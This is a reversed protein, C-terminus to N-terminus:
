GVPRPVLRFPLTDLALRERDRFFGIWGWAKRLPFSFVPGGGMEQAAKRAAKESRFPGRAVVYLTQDLTESPFVHLAGARLFLIDGYRLTKRALAAAKRLDPSSGVAYFYGTRERGGNLLRARYTGAQYLNQLRDGVWLEFPGTAEIRFDRKEAIGVRIAPGFTGPRYVLTRRLDLSTIKGPRRALPLTCAALPLLILLWILKGRM